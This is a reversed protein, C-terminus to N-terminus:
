IPGANVIRGGSIKTMFNLRLADWWRVTASVIRSTAIVATVHIMFPTQRKARVQALVKPVRCRRELFFYTSNKLLLSEFLGGLCLCLRPVPKPILRTRVYAFIRSDGPRRSTRRHRFKPNQAAFPIMDQLKFFDRFFMMILSCVKSLALKPM